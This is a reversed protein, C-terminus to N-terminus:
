DRLTKKEIHWCIESSDEDPWVIMAKDPNDEPDEVLLAIERMGKGCEANFEDSLCKRARGQTSFVGCCHSLPVPMDCDRSISTEIVVYCSNSM